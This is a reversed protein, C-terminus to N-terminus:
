VAPRPAACWRFPRGQLVNQGSPAAPQPDGRCTRRAPKRDRRTAPGAAVWSPFELAHFWCPLM